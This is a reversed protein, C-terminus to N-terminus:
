ALAKSMFVRRLGHEEARHTEVFGFRGYLAINETMMEHTYLRISRLGAQRAAREAYDLLIRGLGRGQLDPSVAVNQLLMVDPEPELVVLGGVMGDQELVHVRGDRILRDYDDLMPGPERGIRPVYIAYARAVISAVAAHDALTASRIVPGTEWPAPSFFPPM